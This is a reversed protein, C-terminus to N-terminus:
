NYSAAVVIDCINLVRFPNYSDLIWEGESQVRSFKYEV